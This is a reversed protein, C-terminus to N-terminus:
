YIFIESFDKQANGTQRGAGSVTTVDPSPLAAMVVKYRGTGPEYNEVLRFVRNKIESLSIAAQSTFVQADRNDPLRLGAPGDFKEQEADDLIAPSSLGRLHDAVLIYRWFTAKASFNVAYNEEMDKRLELDLIGSPKSFFAGSFRAAPVLDGDSVSQGPHLLGPPLPRGNEAPANSFYFVSRSIDETLNATYNLFAPDSVFLHFRLTSPAGTVEDKSRQRGAFNTDYLIRFGDAFPRFLLGLRQMTRVATDDPRVKMSRFRGDSYYAHRFNMTVLIEFRFDM